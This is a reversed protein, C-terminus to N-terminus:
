RGRCCIMRSRDISAIAISAGFTLPVTSERAAADRARDVRPTSAAAQAPMRPGTSKVTANTPCSSERMSSYLGIESGTLAKSAPGFPQTWCAFKTTNPTSVSAKAM